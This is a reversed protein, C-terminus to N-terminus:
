LALWEIRLAAFFSFRGLQLELQFQERVNTQHTKGVRALRRKDRSNGGSTELNGVVREGRQFRVEAHNVESVKTRKDNGVNRTQDFARMRARAQAITKQTVDLPRLQQQM